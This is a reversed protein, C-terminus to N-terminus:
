QDGVPAEVGSVRDESRQKKLEEIQAEIPNM